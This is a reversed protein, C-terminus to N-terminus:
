ERPHITSLVWRFAWRWRVRAGILGAESALVELENRSFARRVSLPGDHRFMTSVPLARSIGLISWYALIHRHLDNVVIGERAIRGMERLLAVADIDGLHHLFLSATVIDFSNDAYNTQLANGSYIDIRQRLRDPLRESLRRSAFEVTFPNADVASVRVDVGARDGWRVFAEPYDAIGTGIDLVRLCGGRRRRLVPELEARVAAYGGLFRNVWRLEELARELRRDGISFDDMMEPALLRHSLSPM